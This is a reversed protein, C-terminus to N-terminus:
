ANLLGKYYSSWYAVRNANEQFYRSDSCKLIRMSISRYMIKVDQMSIVNDAAETQSCIAIKDLHETMAKVTTIVWDDKKNLLFKDCAAKCWFNEYSLLLFAWWNTPTLPHLIRCWKDWLSQWVYHNSESTRSVNICAWADVRKHLKFAVGIHCCGNMYHM